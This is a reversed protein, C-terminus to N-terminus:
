RRPPQQQPPQQRPPPQQHPQDAYQGGSRDDANVVITGVAHDGLRQNDESAAIVILGPIYYFLSEFREVFNRIVSEVYGIQRGDKKIVRVNLLRKGLTQGNWDDRSTDAEDPVERGPHNSAV